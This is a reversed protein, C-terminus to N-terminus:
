IDWDESLVIWKVERGEFIFVRKLIIWRGVEIEVM